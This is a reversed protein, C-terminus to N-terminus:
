HSRTLHPGHRHSRLMEGFAAFMRRMPAQKYAFPDPPDMLHLIAGTDAEFVLLRGDATEGCDISFLDFGLRAALEALATRHRRAFGDDFGAMAAAEQARKGASGTMGANLYHVMWHESVAMHCLHPVGAVFAIRYKRFLGDAARYDVFATLCLLRAASLRLYEALAADDEIRALDHGAHSGGPRVLLPYEAGPLLRSMPAHDALHALLAARTAMAAPPSCLGPVGALVGPLVDRALAPLGRPHNVLPRPWRDCLAGLRALLAPAAESVACFAVDHDPIRAPLAREADLYLLDLRVNLHETLFDLPTNVMLDGPALLALLRLPAPQAAHPRVRFVTGADLAGDQLALGEARRFGLQHAIAADHGYAAARSGSHAIHDLLAATGAGAFAMATLRAVGEVLPPQCDPCLSPVTEDWDVRM